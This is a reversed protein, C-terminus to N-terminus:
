DRFINPGTLIWQNSAIKILQAVSTGNTCVYDTATGQGQGYVNSRTATTEDYVERLIITADVTVFTITTGVPFNVVADVPVNFQQWYYNEDSYVYFFKNADDLTLTIENVNSALIAGEMNPTPKLFGGATTQVTGDPFQLNGSSTFSWSNNGGGTIVVIDNQTSTLEISDYATIWVDDASNISIDADQTDTRTTRIEMDHNAITMYSTSGDTTFTFDALELSSGSSGEQLTDTYVTAGNNISISLNSIYTRTDPDSDTMDAAFGIRYAGTPLTETIATESVLTPSEGTTLVRFIVNDATDLPDYILVMRYTGPDPVSGAETSNTEIGQIELSPCNFQAAIRTTNTGYNWEPVTGNVYICVGADSCFSDIEVDFAVQVKYDTPITFNTFIPYSTGGEIAPGFWAGLSDWGFNANLVPLHARGEAYTLFTPLPVVEDVVTEMAVLRADIADLATNLEDGWNSQGITPKVITM